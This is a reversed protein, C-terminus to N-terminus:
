ANRVDALKGNDQEAILAKIAKIPFISHHGDSWEVRLAYRGAPEIKNPRVDAPIKKEDYRKEGTWEDIMVASKCALRLSRCSVSGNWLLDGTATSTEKAILLDGQQIMEFGVDEYKAKAVGRVVIEALEKLAKYSPLKSNGPKSVFPFHLSDATESIAKEIPVQIVHEIGFKEAIKKSGGSKAFIEHRENCNGCDFYSFNEVVALNPIKMKNWLEIGKEVDALSLQQPTTVVVCGDIKAHQGITLQIDGTGPPMDIVLYDLEGWGTMTLMQQVMGSAMPGRLAVSEGPRLYGMSMLKVGEHEYARIQQKLSVDLDAQKACPVLVPLSPGYIDADLLGVKAGYEHALLFALNTAISSKGVGGKCSAVAIISQVARLGDGSAKVPSQKASLTVAVSSVWTLPSPPAGPFLLPIGGGVGQIVSKCADVFQEKVPCAPTTLELDFRVAGDSSIEMNKVFGLSVIDRHLDPDIIKQLRALVEDQRSIFRKLSRSFM